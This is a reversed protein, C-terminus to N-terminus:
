MLSLIYEKQKRYHNNIASVEQSLISVVIYYENEYLCRTKGSEVKDNLKDKTAIEFTKSKSLNGSGLFSSTEVRKSNQRCRIVQIKIDDLTFLTAIKKYGIMAM